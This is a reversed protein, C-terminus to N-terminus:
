LLLDCKETVNFFTRTPGDSWMYVNAQRPRNPDKPDIYRLISPKFQISTPITDKGSELAFIKGYENMAKKITKNKPLEYNLTLPKNGSFEGIWKSVNKFCKPIINLSYADNVPVLEVAMKLYRNKENISQEINQISSKFINEENKMEIQARDYINIDLQKNCEDENLVEEDPYVPACAYNSVHMLQKLPKVLIGMTLVEDIETQAVPKSVIGRVKGRYDFIPSGSNGESYECGSMIMVPSSQNTAMPNFYSNHVSQCVESKRIIGQQGDTLQDVSWIYFKDLDDMGSRNPTVIKRDKLSTTLKLYAVDSRWLYPEKSNLQSVELVEKCGVRLPKENNKAFFFFVDKECNAGNFRIRDSLCSSATVVVDDKTLFGTCFKLKDKNVVAIKTIYNPCSRDSGGCFLEQKALDAEVDNTIPPTYRPTVPKEEEAKKGCGMTLMVISAIMMCFYPCLKQSKIIPEQSGYIFWLSVKKM